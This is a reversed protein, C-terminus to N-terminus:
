HLRARRRQLCDAIQGFATITLAFCIARAYVWSHFLVLVLYLLVEFLMLFLCKKRYVKKERTSLPKNANEVPSFLLMTMFSLGLLTHMAIPILPLYFIFVICLFTSIYTLWICIRETPAHYGGAYIRIISYSLEFLLGAFPDGLLLGLLLVFVLDCLLSGLRKLGIAVIKDNTDDVYGQVRLHDILKSRMM